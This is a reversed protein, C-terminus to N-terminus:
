YGKPIIKLLMWGGVSVGIFILIYFVQVMLLEKELRFALAVFFPLLLVVGSLLNCYGFVRKKGNKLVVIGISQQAIPPSLLYSMQDIQDVSTEQGAFEVLPLVRGKNKRDSFGTVPVECVEGTLSVYLYDGILVLGVLAPLASLFLLITELM